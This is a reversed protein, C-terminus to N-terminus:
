CATRHDQKPLKVSEIMVWEDDVQIFDISVGTCDLSVGPNRIRIFDTEPM